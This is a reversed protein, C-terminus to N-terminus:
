SKNNAIFTDLAKKLEDYPLAGEVLSTKGTKMDYIVGTPTAQVGAGSGESFDSKVKKAYKNKDLCDQFKNQDIGIEGALPVLNSIAFGTGNSTTREYIKDTFSWFADNGGQEGACESAEAEKQANQHFSLPFHRYVWSVKGKNEDMLQLMDPHVKKCFPCELDSYEVWVYRVNKDGRWHESTSPKKIKISTPRTPQAQPAGAMNANQKLGKVENFLYLSFISLFLVLIFLFITTSSPAARHEYQPVSEQVPEPKSVRRTSSSKKVIKKAM